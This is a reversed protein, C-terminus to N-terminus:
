VGYIAHVHNYVAWFLRIDIIAGITVTTWTTVKYRFVTMYGIRILQHLLNQKFPM